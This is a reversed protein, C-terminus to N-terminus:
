NSDKVNLKIADMGDLGKKDVAEVAIHHEGPNLKRVQKGEKDMYIEAKFGEDPKHNFDWSFFEIGVDSKTAANFAYKNREIEDATLSVEPPDGVSIIENVKKLEIIIRQKNKLRAVEEVATKSFSYAIIYGVPKGNEINKDFM